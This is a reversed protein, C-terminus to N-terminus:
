GNDGEVENIISALAAVVLAVHKPDSTFCSVAREDSDINYMACRAGSASLNKHSNIFDRTGLWYRINSIMRNFM